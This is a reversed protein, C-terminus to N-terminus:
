PRWVRAPKLLKREILAARLELTVEVDTINYTRLKELWEPDNEYVREWGYESMGGKASIGFRQAMNGLSASFAQGRKVLQAYTDCVLMPPLPELGMKVMMGNLLPLDYRIGNHTVVLAGGRLPAVFDELAGATFGPALYEVREGEYGGAISLMHKFTFDGGGWPGPRSEIDFCWVRRKAGWSIRATAM